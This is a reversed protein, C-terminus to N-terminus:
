SRDEKETQRPTIQWEGKAMLHRLGQRLLRAKATEQPPSESTQEQRVLRIPAQWTRMRREVLRRDPLGYLKAFELRRPTRGEREIFCRVAATIAEETWIRPTPM